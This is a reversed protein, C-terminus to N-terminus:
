LVICFTQSVILFMHFSISRPLLYLLPKSSLPSLFFHIMRFLGLAYCIAHRIVYFCLSFKFSKEM